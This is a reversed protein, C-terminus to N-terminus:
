HGRRRRRKREERRAAIEMRMLRKEGRYVIRGFITWAQEKSMRGDHVQAAVYQLARTLLLTARPLSKDVPTATALFFNANGTEEWKKVHGRLLLFCVAKVGVCRGNSFLADLANEKDMARFVTKWESITLGLFM